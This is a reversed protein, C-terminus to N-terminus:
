SNFCSSSQPGFVNTMSVEDEKLKGYFHDIYTGVAVCGRSEADRLKEYILETQQYPKIIKVVPVGSDIASQLENSGGIGLMLM